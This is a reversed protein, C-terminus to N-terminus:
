GQGNASEEGRVSFVWNKLIVYNILSVVVVAAFGALWTM